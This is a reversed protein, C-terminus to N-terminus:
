EARPREALCGVSFLREGDECVEVGRYHPNERMAGEAWERARVDDSLSIVNLTPVSYRDDEIYVTFTRVIPERPQRPWRPNPSRDDAFDPAAMAILREL